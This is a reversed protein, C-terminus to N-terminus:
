VGIEKATEFEEAWLGESLEAEKKEKWAELAERPIHGDKCLSLLSNYTDVLEYLWYCDTIRIDVAFFRSCSMCEEGSEKSLNVILPYECLTALTRFVDAKTTTAEKTNIELGCLEDLSVSFYSALKIATDLQPTKIGKEFASIAASTVGTSEAVQKQTVGKQRRLDFLKQSLEKM